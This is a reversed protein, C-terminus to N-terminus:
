VCRATPLVPRGAEDCVYVRTNPMPHGITVPRGPEVETLTAYVTDETPGYMNILHAPSAAKFREVLQASVPEGGVIMLELGAAARCFAENGLCMQLRSATFQMYKVGHREMLEAMKWPLMMEQEDALVIPKGMALPILSESAFIDFILQTTCLIPGPSGSFLASVGGYLNTIARQPIMVGKPKGTSGSTFLVHILEDRGVVADEFSDPAEGELM